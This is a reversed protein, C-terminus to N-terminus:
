ENLPILLHACFDRVHLPVRAEAMEERTVKM